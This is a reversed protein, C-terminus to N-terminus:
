RIHIRTNKHGYNRVLAFLRAANGPALRICGHSAPRGLRGTESTGHIAYGGSYFISHPMPSNYYKKSYHMRALWKPSYTGAPTRFGRRGTSVAWHHRMVGNVYVRMSQSGRDVRVTVGAAAEGIGTALSGAAITIALLLAKVTNLIRM